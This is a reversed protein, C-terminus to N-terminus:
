EGRIAAKLGNTVMSPFFRIANLPFISAHRILDSVKLNFSMIKRIIRNKKEYFSLDRNHGMNGVEMVFTYIRNSKRTWKKDANYFPMAEVPMGLYEVAFAAFAKWETMLGMQKIRSELLDHDLSSRYTWLLRCWDCIQRLGLGGRYFHKLFHTFVFLVDCDIDPIFIQVNGNLWSRVKGDYFVSDQIKQIGRDVRSSLWTFQNSHLEIHWMKNIDASINRSENNSPDFGNDVLPRLFERAKIFNEESLLFDVDGSARWLPREYCQAVGQGKLILTYIDAERMKQVLEGIFQNMQSNCQELQLAQGVFQLIIEQPVKIDAVHEIGAAIVGEVAQEEAFCLLQDYDIERYRLLQAEKEWLGARLLEFFAKQTSSTTM